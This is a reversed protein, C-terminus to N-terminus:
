WSTPFVFSMMELYLLTMASPSANLTEQIHGQIKKMELGFRINEHVTKHPFLAHNQFMLGIGRKHVPTSILSQSNWLIDGTSIQILGSISRLLTSKGCGSPGLLAVTKGPQIEFNIDSLIQADNIHVSLSNVQLGESKM